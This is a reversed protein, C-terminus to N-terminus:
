LKLFCSRSKDQAFDVFAIAAAQFLSHFSNQEAMAYRGCAAAATPLKGGVQLMAFCLMAFCWVM